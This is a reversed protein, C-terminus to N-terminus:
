GPARGHHARRVAVLGIAGALATAAMGASVAHLSPLRWCSSRRHLDRAPASPAIPQEAAWRDLARGAMGTPPMLDWLGRLDPRTPAFEDPRRRCAACANLHTAVAIAERGQPLGDFHGSLLREVHQCNM